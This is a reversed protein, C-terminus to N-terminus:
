GRGRCKRDRKNSDMSSILPLQIKKCNGPMSHDLIPRALSIIPLLSLFSPSCPFLFKFCKEYSLIRDYKTEFCLGPLPPFAAATAGDHLLGSHSKASAHEQQISMEQIKFISSENKKVGLLYRGCM